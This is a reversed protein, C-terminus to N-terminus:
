RILPFVPDGAAIQDTAPQEVEPDAGEVDAEEAHRRDYEREDAGQQNEIAGRDPGGPRRELDADIWRREGIAQMPRRQTVAPQPLDDGDAGDAREAGPRQALHLDGALEAHAQVHREAEGSRDEGVHGQHHDPREQHARPAISKGVADHAVEIPHGVDAVLVQVKVVVREVHDGHRAEERRGQRQGQM